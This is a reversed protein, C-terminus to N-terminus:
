RSRSKKRKVKRKNGTEDEEEVEEEDNEVVLSDQFEEEAKKMEAGDVKEKEERARKNAEDVSITQGVRDTANDQQELRKKAESDSIETTILVLANAGLPVVSVEAEGDIQALKKNVERTIEAPLNSTSQGNRTETVGRISFADIWKAM